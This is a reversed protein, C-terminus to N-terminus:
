VDVFRALRYDADLRLSLVVEMGLFNFINDMTIDRDFEESLEDILKGAGEPTMVIVDPDIIHACEANIRDYLRM